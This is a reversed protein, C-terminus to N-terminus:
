RVIYRITAAHCSTASAVALPQYRWGRAQEALAADLAALGSSRTIAVDTVGGDGGVCLRVGTEARGDLEVLVQGNMRHGLDPATPASLRAPFSPRAATDELVLDLQPATHVGGPAAPRGLETSACGSITVLGLALSSLVINTKM